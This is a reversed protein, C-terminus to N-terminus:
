VSPLGGSRSIRWFGYVLISIIPVVFFGVIFLTKALGSLAPQRLVDVVIFFVLVVYIAIAFFVM